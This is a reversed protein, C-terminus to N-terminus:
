WVTNPRATSIVLCPWEKESVFYVYISFDEWVQDDEPIKGVPEVHEVQSVNTGWINTSTVAKTTSTWLFGCIQKGSWCHTNICAVNLNNQEGLINMEVMKSQRPAVSGAQVLSV